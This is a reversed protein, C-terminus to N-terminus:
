QALSAITFPRLGDTSIRWAQDPHETSVLVVSQPGIIPEPGLVLVAAGAVRTEHALWNHPLTDKPLGDFRFGDETPVWRVTLGTLRSQARASDLLAALRQADRELPQGATDRVAFAVGASAVAVIAIVVLIELLTFGAARLRPFRSSSGPASTPM